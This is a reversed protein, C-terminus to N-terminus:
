DVEKLKFFLKEKTIPLEKFSIGTADEIANGVAASLALVSGEGIGKSGFPGAGDKNEIFYSEIDKPVDNCTFICYNLPDANLLRGHEDYLMQETLTHGLAMVTGGLEQGEAQLPNIIKGADTVNVIKNFKIAGTKKDVTLDVATVIFEWFDSTGGLKVKRSKKGRFQGKGIIDAQNLGFYEKLFDKYSIRDNHLVIYGDELRVTDNGLNYFEAAYRRLQNNIDNCADVVANGMSLTSRSGATSQDFPATSTDGMRISVMDIPINLIEAAIQKMATRAGQGMETTGVNVIVSGDSLLRVISMSMSAPIPNKIGIAIGKGQFPAKPSNFGIKEAAKDLAYKWDGDAPNDNPILEKGKDPINKRRLELRDFNMIRSAEDLNREVAWVLQPMGFGRFATSPSTNSNIVRVKIRSNEANYAGCATYGAKAAIRPGEAAYAGILYDARINQFVIKGEKDFGTEVTTSNALRRASCFGENFSLDLKVPRKLRLALYAAIPELKPYGKGGFGGGIEEAVVKIKSQPIGFSDAIVRRMIFPHQIPTWIVLGDDEPAAVCGYNELSFHYVMPFSYKNKVTFDANKRASDVDGWGYDYEDYVNKNLGERKAALYDSNVVPADPALAADITTVAKNEKYSVKIKKIAQKASYDSAAVVAAIPEGYYKVNNEALIPQDNVVSGFRPIPKEIDDATIVDVVGYSKLAEKVDIDIIDACGYESRYLKAYLMGSLKRDCVYRQVGTVKNLIRERRVSKGVYENKM